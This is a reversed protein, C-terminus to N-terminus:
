SNELAQKIQSMKTKILSVEPEINEISDTKAAKELTAAAKSIEMFGLNASAGKISHASMASAQLDGSSIGKEFNSLDNLSVDVLMEALEIFDEIDIGIDSAMQKFNM